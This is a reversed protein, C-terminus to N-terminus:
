AAGNKDAKIKEHADQIAHFYAAARQRVNPMNTSDDKIRKISQMLGANNDPEVKKARPANAYNKYAQIGPNMGRSM